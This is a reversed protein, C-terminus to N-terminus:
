CSATQQGPWRALTKSHPPGGGSKIPALPRFEHPEHFARKRLHAHMPVMFRYSLSKNCICCFNASPFTPEHFAENRKHVHMPVMFRLPGIYPLRRAQGALAFARAPTDDAEGVPAPPVGARS